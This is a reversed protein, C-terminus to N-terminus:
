SYSDRFQKRLDLLTTTANVKTISAAICKVNPSIKKIRSVKHNFLNNNNSMCHIFYFTKMIFAM